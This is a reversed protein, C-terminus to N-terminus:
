NIRNQNPNNSTNSDYGWLISQFELWELYELAEALDILNSDDQRFAVCGSTQKNTGDTM